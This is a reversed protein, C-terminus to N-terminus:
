KKFNLTKNNSHTSLKISENKKTLTVSNNDVASLTYSKVTDNLNYWNGNILASNNLVASLILNKTYKKRIINKPPIIGTSKTFSKNINNSKVLTKKKEDKDVTRNKKLFIVPTRLSSLSSHTLGSRNPKIANIQTDVWSLEDSSLNLSLILLGIIYINKM